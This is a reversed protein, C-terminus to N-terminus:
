KEKTEGGTQSLEWDDFDWLRQTLHQTGIKHLPTEADKASKPSATTPEMTQVPAPVGKRRVREELRQQKLREEYLQQYRQVDIDDSNYVKTRIRARLNKQKKRELAERIIDAQRPTQQPPPQSQSMVSKQFAIKEEVLLHELTEVKTQLILKEEVQYMLRQQLHEITDQLEEITATTTSTTEPPNAQEKSSSEQTAQLILENSQEGAENNKLQERLIMNEASLHVIKELLTENEAKTSQLIQESAQNKGQLALIQAQLSAITPNQPQKTSSSNTDNEDENVSAIRMKHELQKLQDELSKNRQKYEANEKLMRGLESLLQDGGALPLPLASTNPQTM